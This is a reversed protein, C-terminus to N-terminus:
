LVWCNSFQLVSGFPAGHDLPRWLPSRLSLDSTRIEALDVSKEAFFLLKNNDRRWPNFTRFLVDGRRKMTLTGRAFELSSIRTSLFLRDMRALLFAPVFAPAAFRRKSLPVFCCSSPLHNPCFLLRILHDVGDYSSHPSFFFFFLVSGNSIQVEFRQTNWHARYDLGWHLCNFAQCQGGSGHQEEPRHQPDERHSCHDERHRHVLSWDPHLVDRGRLHSRGVPFFLFNFNM